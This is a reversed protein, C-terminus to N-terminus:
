KIGCLIGQIGFLEGIADILTPLLLIIIVILLRTICKKIVKSTLGDKTIASVFDAMCMVIVVALSIYKVIQFVYNLWYAPCDKNNEEANGLYYACSDKGYGSTNCSNGELLSFYNIFTNTKSTMSLSTQYVPLYNNVNINCTNEYNNNTFGTIVLLFSTLIFMRLVSKM